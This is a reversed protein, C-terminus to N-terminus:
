WLIGTRTLGQGSLLMVSECPVKEASSNSPEFSIPDKLGLFGLNSRSAYRCSLHLLQQVVFALHTDTLTNVHGSYYFASLSSPFFDIAVNWHVTWWILYITRGVALTWGQVPSQSARMPTLNMACHYALERISQIMASKDFITDNESFHAM